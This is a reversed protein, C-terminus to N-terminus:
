PKACIGAEYCGKGYTLKALEAIAKPDRCLPAPPLLQTRQAAHHQSLLVAGCQQPMTRAVASQQCPLFVVRMRYSDRKGRSSVRGLDGAQAFAMSCPCAALHPRQLAPQFHNLPINCAESCGGRLRAHPLLCCALCTCAGLPWACPSLKATRNLGAHPM